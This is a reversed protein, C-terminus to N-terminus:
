ERNFCHDLHAAEPPRTFASVTILTLLALPLAIIIPDVSSWNPYDALLSPKGDTIIQVLGIASAEKAKILLLWFLSVCLGVTMSALAGARTVRRSFLGGFYAPLFTAACLGFFIATFRAIVEGRVTYSITVAILLGIVIAIRMVLISPETHHKGTLREYLDRGAATGITHFQSSMTSMAAALLALFFVLGFWRPMAATIFTPIIQDADGKAYVIAPARGTVIEISRGNIDQAIIPNTSILLPAVAPKNTKANIIPTWHGAPSQKMLAVLAHHQQPDIEKIVQGKFIAGNEIFWANSLSGVTFPIGTMLLIFFVGIPVARDLERRSRVTMFRVMLQPQALVGIGVGLIIATIVTWWLDYSKDGWGFAPMATWGRHGIEQLPPPVLSALETLKTHAETVGGLSSYTVWLLFLMAVVMILGQFTDTYMVAKLGGPIVYAATIIAFVLLAVEFDIGFQAAAFVTGGTMVAASYLPMFLFILSGAFLQIAKSQYRAGLLEPFTHAGLRHGLRRTPEGLLTFAILIGVTINLFTLWLLSMGFLGAVGGFGVIAATSIFTAGYSVAMIIPHASRGGVLFDAASRTGRWGLYGLYATIMLYSLIVIIDLWGLAAHELM